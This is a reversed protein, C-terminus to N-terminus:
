PTDSKQMCPFGAKLCPRGFCSFSSLIPSLPSFYRFILKQFRINEMQFSFVLFCFVNQYTILIFRKIMIFQFLCPKIQIQTGQCSQVSILFLRKTLDLIKLHLFLVTVNKQFQYKLHILSKGWGSLDKQHFLKKFSPHVLGNRYRSAHFLM